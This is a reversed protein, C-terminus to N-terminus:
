ETVGYDGSETMRITSQTHESHAGGTGGMSTELLHLGLVSCEYGFLRTWKKCLEEFMNVKTGGRSTGFSNLKSRRYIM